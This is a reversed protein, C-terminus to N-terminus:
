ETQKIFLSAKEKGQTSVIRFLVKILWIVMFIVIIPIACYAILFMAIADIFNNLIKKANEEADSVSDKVKDLMNSLWSKNEQQTEPIDEEIEVTVLEVTQENIDYIFNSIKLGFPIIMVLVMAIIITKIAITKFADKKVFTYIGLLGCAVPILISFSVYGVVTLLSKELVLMCVVILLYSSIEMIQNAIPTTADGPVAGLITSATAAATTIGMVATKKEDISQITSNYSAPNTAFKSIVFISILAIALLLVISIIKPPSIKGCSEKVNM